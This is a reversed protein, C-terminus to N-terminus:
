HSKDINVETTHLFTQCGLGIPTLHYGHTKVKRLLHNDNEAELPQAEAHNFGSHFLREGCLGLVIAEVSAM